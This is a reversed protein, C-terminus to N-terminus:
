RNIRKNHRKIKERGMKGLDMIKKLGERINNENRKGNLILFVISKILEQKTAVQILKGYNYEM